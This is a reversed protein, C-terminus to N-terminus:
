SQRAPPYRVALAWHCGYPWIGVRGSRRFVPKGSLGNGELLLPQGYACVGELEPMLDPHEEWFAVLERVDAARFEPGFEPMQRQRVPIVRMWLNQRGSGNRSIGLDKIQSDEVQLGAAVAAQGTPIDYDVATQVLPGDQRDDCAALMLVLAFIVRKM